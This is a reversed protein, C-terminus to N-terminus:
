HLQSFKDNGILNITNANCPLITKNDNNAVPVRNLVTIVVLATDCFVVPSCSGPATECLQYVLTDKGTFGPGPTYQINNGVVTATGNKPITTVVPATLSGGEPDTDNGTVAISVM